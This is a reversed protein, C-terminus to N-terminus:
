AVRAASKNGRNALWRDLAATTYLVRRGKRGAGIAPTIGRAQLDKFHCYSLRSYAAAERTTLYPSATPM